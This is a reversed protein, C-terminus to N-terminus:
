AGIAVASWADAPEYLIRQFVDIQLSGPGTRCRQVEPRMRQGWDRLQRDQLHDGRHVQNRIQREREALDGMVVQRLGLGGVPFSFGMFKCLSAKDLSGAAFVRRASLTATTVPAALPM